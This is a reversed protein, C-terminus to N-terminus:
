KSVNHKLLTPGFNEWKQEFERAWAYGNQINLVLIEKLHLIQDPLTEM